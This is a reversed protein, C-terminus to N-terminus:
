KTVRSLAWRLAEVGHKPAAAIKPNYAKRLEPVLNMADRLRGDAHHSFHNMCTAFRSGMVELNCDPMCCINLNQKEKLEAHSEIEDYWRSQNIFTQTNCWEPVFEGTKKAATRYRLQADIALMIKKHEDEPLKDYKDRCKLKAIKKGPYRAWFESFKDM